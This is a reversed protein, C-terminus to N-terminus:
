YKDAAHYHEWVGAKGLVGSRDHPQYIEDGAVTLCLRVYIFLHISQYLSCLQKVRFIHFVMPKTPFSKLKFGISMSIGNYVMNPPFEVICMIM